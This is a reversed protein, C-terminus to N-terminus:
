FAYIADREVSPRLHPKLTERNAVDVSGPFLEQLFGVIGAYGFVDIPADADIDVLLDIDSAATASARATSGFLAVHRVGRGRLETEHRRLVDLIEAREM